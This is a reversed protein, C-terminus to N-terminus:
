DMQQPRLADIGDDGVGAWSRRAEVKQEVVQGSYVLSGFRHPLKAPGIEDHYEVDGIESAKAHEDLRHSVPTNRHRADIMM